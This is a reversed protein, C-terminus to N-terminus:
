LFNNLQNKLELFQCIDCENEEPVQIAQQQANANNISSAFLQIQNMDAKIVKECKSLNTISKNPIPYFSTNVNTHPENHDSISDVSLAQISYDLDKLNINKKIKNM